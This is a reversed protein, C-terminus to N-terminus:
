HKRAAYLIVEDGIEAGDGACSMHLDQPNRHELASVVGDLPSSTRQEGPSPPCLRKGRAAIRFHEGLVDDVIKGTGLRELVLNLFVVRVRRWEVPWFTAPFGSERIVLHRPNRNGAKSAPSRNEYINGRAAHQQSGLRARLM